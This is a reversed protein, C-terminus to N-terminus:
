VHARGIQAYQLDPHVPVLSHNIWEYGTAYVDKQTGFPLTDLEGKARQYVVSRDNRSFPKGDSNSEVFYQNIEPRISEFLYRARGIVPFNRRVAQRTQAMDIVGLVILPGFAVLSWLAPPWVLAVAGVLVVTGVSLAVFLRRMDM